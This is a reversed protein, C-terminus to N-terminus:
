DSGKTSGPLKNTAFQTTPLAVKPLNMRGCQSMLYERWYPWVHFSANNLAFVDLEKQNLEEAIFYEAIFTAEIVVKVDDGGGEGKADGPAVWRTGLDIFVRFVREDEGEDNFILTESRRVLHKFQISLENAAVGGDGFSYKPDFGNALNATSRRLYVDRILLCKIARQLDDNM